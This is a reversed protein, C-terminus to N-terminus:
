VEARGMCNLIFCICVAPEGGWSKLKVDAQIVQDPRSFTIFTTIRNCYNITHKYNVVYVAKVGHEFSYLIVTCYGTVGSQSVTLLRVPSM